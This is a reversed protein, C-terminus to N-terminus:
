KHMTCVKTLRNWRSALGLWCFGKRFRKCLVYYVTYYHQIHCTSPEGTDRDGIAHASAGFSRLHFSCTIFPWGSIQHIIKTNVKIYSKRPTQPHLSPPHPTHKTPPMRLQLVCFGRCAITTQWQSERQRHRVCALRNSIMILIKCLHGYRKYIFCLYLNPNYPTRIHLATSNLQCLFCLSSAKEGNM